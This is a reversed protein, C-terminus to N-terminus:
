NNLWHPNDSDMKMKYMPLLFFCVRVKSEPDM